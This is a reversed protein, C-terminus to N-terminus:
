NRAKIRAETTAINWKLHTRGEPSRVWKFFAPPFSIDRVHNQNQAGIETVRTPVDQVKVLERGVNARILVEVNLMAPDKMFAAIETETIFGGRLTLIAMIATRTATLVPIIPFIM